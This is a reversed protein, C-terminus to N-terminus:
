RIPPLHVNQASRGIRTPGFVQLRRGEISGFLQLLRLDHEPGAQQVFAELALEADSWCTQQQGLVASVDALDRERLAEGHADARAMWEFLKAASDKRGQEIPVDTEIRGVTDALKAILAAHSGAPSSVPLPLPPALTQGTLTCMAHLMVQRLALDFELYVDHPDGPTPKGVTGTFQMTGLAAFMLTHYQVVRDDIAEGACAEYHRFLTRMDDGLPEISDRMRMTALDVMPDGIMSFEFDYLGTLRGDLHLFQGSDFQIFAARSRHRPAHRRLWGIVFELMPEPRRKTRRYLPLYAELGVLAIAQAGQPVELGRAAFPEVPLRHMAAVQAMYERAVTGREADSAAAAMDRTGPLADMVICPPNACYGFIRPVAIGHVALVEMVDAERKLDPFIAVDGERDGRLHLRLTDGAVDVDVFWAPRWRVQREMRTIRGGTLSEVFGRLRAVGDTGYDPTAARLTASM